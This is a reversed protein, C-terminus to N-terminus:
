YKTRSIKDSNEKKKWIHYLQLYIEVIELVLILENKILLTFYINLAKTENAQPIM